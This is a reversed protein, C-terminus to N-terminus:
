QRQLLNELVCIDLFVGLSLCDEDIDFDKTHVTATIGKERNGCGLHYFAGPAENLFFSFDEAGMSPYEKTFVKDAGLKEEALEKIVAVIRDDNVLADYGPSIEVKGVAGYAAAVDEVIKTLRKKAQQRVTENVTRLTGRLVVEDCIINGTTGGQITGLSVVVSELPSVNRSVISQVGQVIASAVLIADVGTEPYAGHGAKGIVTIKIGDTSANLKGFKVEVEGAERYTMIHKGIVYDVKPNEMCGAEVMRQAGGMAEEAPQFFFKINGKFQDRRESFYRAVGLAITTHADHGCAHAVGPNQSRYPVDKSDQIPLADIDARLAVTNGGEGGRIIGVVGTRAIPHHEVGMETLRDKIFKQTEYEQDSLEPHQHLHRRTQVLWAQYLEKIRKLEKDQLM